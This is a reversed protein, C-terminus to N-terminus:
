DLAVDVDVLEEAAERCARAGARAAAATRADGQEAAQKRERRLLRGLSRLVPAYGHEQVLARLEGEPEDQVEERVHVVRGHSDLTCMM